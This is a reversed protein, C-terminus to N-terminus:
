LRWSIFFFLFFHLTSSYVTVSYQWWDLRESTRGDHQSRKAFLCYMVHVYELSMLVSAPFLDFALPYLCTLLLVTVPGTYAAGM